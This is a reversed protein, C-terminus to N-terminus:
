PNTEDLDASPPKRVPQHRRAIIVSINDPGQSANALAVLKDAAAQPSLESAAAWILAEPVVSWLGDSCLVLIDDAALDASTEYPRVEPRKASISMSLHSRKPHRLAQEPTLVGARVQDAVWSQDQSLQIVNRGRLLYARSDGVNLLYVRPPLLLAAVLTSGMSALGPDLAGRERVLHHALQLGDQLLVVPDASLRDRLYVDKMGQIVLQSSLAGGRYGGMGDAVLLLPPSPEGPLLLEIADQNPQGRRKRGPDCASGFEFGRSIRLTEM